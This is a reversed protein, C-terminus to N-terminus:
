VPLWPMSPLASSEPAPFISDQLSGRQYPPGTCMSQKRSDGLKNINFRRTHGQFMSHVCLASESEVWGDPTLVATKGSKLLKGLGTNRTDGHPAAGATPPLDVSTAIKAKKATPANKAVEAIEAKRKELTKKGPARTKTVTQSNDNDNDVHSV